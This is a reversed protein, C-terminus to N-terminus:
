EREQQNRENELIIEVAKIIESMNSPIHGIEKTLIEEIQKKAEESLGYKPPQIKGEPFVEKGRKEWERYQEDLPIGLQNNEKKKGEQKGEQQAKRYLVYKRINSM